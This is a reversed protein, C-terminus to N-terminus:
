AGSNQIADIVTQRIIEAAKASYESPLSARAISANGGGKGQIQQLAKVIDTAKIRKIASEGVGVIFTTRKGDTTSIAVEKSKVLESDNCFNCFIM